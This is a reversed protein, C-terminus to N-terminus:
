EPTAPAAAGDATAAHAQSILDQEEEKLYAALEKVATLVEDVQGRSPVYALMTAGSKVPGTGAQKWSTAWVRQAALTAAKDIRTALWEKDAETLAVPIDELHWPRTDAEHAADYTASLHAHGTHPDALTYVRERWDYASSWIRRNFIVLHLRQEAGSRCRAILHQVVAEMTLGPVRLDTDLDIAHVENRNDPDRRRLEVTDEDPTHDSSPSHAADGISGDSARDRGPALLNLEARFQVLCPVLSWASM